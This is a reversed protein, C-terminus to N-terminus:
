SWDLDLYGRELFESYYPELKARVAMKTKWVSQRTRGIREAIVSEDEGAMLGTLVISECRSLCVKDIIEKLQMDSQYVDYISIADLLKMVLDSNNSFEEDLCHDLSFTSCEKTEVGTEKYEAVQQNTRYRTIKLVRDEKIFNTLHGHLCAVIYGTINNSRKVSDFKEVSECVSCMAVGVLDDTKSAHNEVYRGVIQLALGMHGLIIVNRVDIDGTGLLEVLENLRKPDLPRNIQSQNFGSKYGRSRAKVNGLFM